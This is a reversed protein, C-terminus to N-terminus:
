YGNHNEDKNLIDNAKGQEKFGLFRSFTELRTLRCDSMAQRMKNQSNM